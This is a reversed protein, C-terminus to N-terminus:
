VGYKLQFNLYLLNSLNALWSSSKEEEWWCSNGEAVVWQPRRQPRAHSNAGRVAHGWVARSLAKWTEQRCNRHNSRTPEERRQLPMKPSASPSHPLLQIHQNKQKLIGSSSELNWTKRKPIRWFFSSKGECFDQCYSIYLKWATESHLFSKKMQIESFLPPKIIKSLAWLETGFKGKRSERSTWMM